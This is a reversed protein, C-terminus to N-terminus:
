KAFFIRNREEDSLNLLKACKAIESAKFETVNNLKNYLGERTIGLKNALFTVSIGSKAICKRLEETNTM